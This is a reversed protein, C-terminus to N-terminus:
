ESCEVMPEAIQAWEIFSTHPVGPTLFPLTGMQLTKMGYTPIANKLVKFVSKMSNAATSFLNNIESKYM